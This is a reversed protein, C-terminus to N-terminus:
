VHVEIFRTMDNGFIDVVKLAVKRKGVQILKIADRIENDTLMM